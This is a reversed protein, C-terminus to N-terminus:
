HKNIYANTKSLHHKFIKKTLSHVGFIKFDFRQNILDFCYQILQLEKEATLKQETQHILRLPFINKLRGALTLSSVDHKAAIQRRFLTKEPDRCATVAADLDASKYSKM